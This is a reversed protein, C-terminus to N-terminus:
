WLRSSSVTSTNSSPVASQSAPPSRHDTARRPTKASRAVASYRGGLTGTVTAACDGSSAMRTEVGAVAPPRGASISGSAIRM